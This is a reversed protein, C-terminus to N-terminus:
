KQSAYATMVKMIEKDYQKLKGEVRLQNSISDKMLNARELAKKGKLDAAIADKEAALALPDAGMRGIVKYVINENKDRIMSPGIVAGEPNSFAAEVFVSQGIGEVADSRGFMSSTVVDLKYSKAVTTIDEGGRIREAAKKATDEAVLGAQAAIYNQRVQDAVENFESNRAPTKSNMVVIALRNAPLIQVPSVENPKMDKLLAEIEPSSGLGPIPQGPNANVVPTVDAGFQKAIDVASGPSKVLAARIQDGAAQMKDVVKQKRLDVMLGAKVDEFPKVHAAERELLQVIQFGYQSTIVGSLDKPNKLGFAAAEFEPSGSQGRVMWDLDGGKEASATDQSNKKALEAFDAGGKLQKLLDEAKAKLVAKEADSKGEAQILIHRVHVREPMRFNDLSTNYAARLEADTFQITAEMKEQDLVVVQFSSKAPVTYSARNADFVKHLADDTPKVQDNFKGPPFAIYAIQAREYKRAFEAQVEGPTVVIGELVGDQLKKILLTTRMEDIADDLTYGQSALFQEYQSRQDDTMKGGPFFQPSGAILGVLVEDDSVTLGMREAQYRVALDDTLKAVYQPVYAQMMGEPLQTKFRGFRKQFDLSTVKYPGVQVLVPDDTTTGLNSGFSPILYTVMSAAVILFFVGMFIKMTKGQSRFLHFM